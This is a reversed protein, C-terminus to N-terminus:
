LRVGFWKALERSGAPTVTLARGIRERVVWRRDLAVRLLESGVAGGVHARRESWDLCGFAFRRRSHRLTEADIGLRGLAQTGSETLEYADAAEPSARRVIWELAVLRDHLAVGLAGAIHDYCTRAARLHDPTSPVFRGNAAGALVNLSELVRAVHANALTYYRHRGQAVVRVLGDDRLRALHTSATAATVEGVLALETSTRARGEMLCYLMRARAPEGIAAALRAVALDPNSAIM